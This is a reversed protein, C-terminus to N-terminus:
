LILAAKVRLSRQKKVVGLAHEIGCGLESNAFDPLYPRGIGLAPWSGLGDMRAEVVKM